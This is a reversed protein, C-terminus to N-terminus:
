ALAALVISINGGTFGPLARSIFLLWLLNSKVAFAFLIYGILTGVLSIQLIRKRGYKDALTGLIPAGFFQFFPFTAALFGYLINRSHASVGAALISHPTDMILNPLIPIIIGIGLMDIFVTIFVALIPNLTKKEQQM